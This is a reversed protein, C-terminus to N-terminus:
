GFIPGEGGFTPPLPSLAEYPADLEIGFHTKLAQIYAEGKPLELVTEEGGLTKRLTRNFLTVSGGPIPLAAVRASTFLTDPHTSTYHNGYAIDAKCVYEMDFSYLDHWREEKFTQLMTGFRETQKLRVQRGDHVSPHDHILPVPGRPNDGGFGVDVVWKKGGISVLSLQHGRGSPTGTVHVRGLLPRGTFGFYRLAALFLGNLEFCYGGRKRHVLKNFVARPTLDIKRGLQIDFNEFPISHLHAHHLAKLNEELPSTEGKYGIRGLYAKGNFEHGKDHLAEM